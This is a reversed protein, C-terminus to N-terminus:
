KGKPKTKGFQVGHIVGGGKSAKQKNIVARKQIAKKNAESKSKVAKALNRDQKMQRALDQQLVIRRAATTINQVGRPDLPKNAM